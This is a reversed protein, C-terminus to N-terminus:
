SSRGVRWAAAWQVAGLPARSGEKAGLSEGDGGFTKRIDLVM